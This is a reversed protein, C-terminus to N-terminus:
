VVSKRDRADHNLCLCWAAGTKASLELRAALNGASGLNVPSNNYQIQWNNKQAIEAIRGSGLSDVVIVPGVDSHPNAFISELLSIVAADSRFASIAVAVSPNM